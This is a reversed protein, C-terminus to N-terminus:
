LNKAAKSIIESDVSMLQFNIKYKKSISIYNQSNLMLGVKKKFKIVKKISNILIRNLKPSGLKCNYEKSLDYTGFYIVDLEFVQPILM